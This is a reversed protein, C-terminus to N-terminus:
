VKHCERYKNYFDIRWEDIFSKKNYQDELDSEFFKGKVTYICIYLKKQNDRLFFYLANNLDALNIDHQYELVTLDNIAIKFLGSLWLKLDDGVTYYNGKKEDPLPAEIIYDSFNFAIDTIGLMQNIDSQFNNEHLLTKLNKCWGKHERRLTISRNHEAKAHAQFLTSLVLDYEKQNIFGLIDELTDERYFFVKESSIVKDCLMMIGMDFNAPCTDRNVSLGVIQQSEDNCLLNYFIDTVSQRCFAYPRVIGAEIELIKSISIVVDKLQRGTEDKTSVVSAMFMGDAKLVHYEKLESIPISQIHNEEDLVLLNKRTESYKKIRFVAIDGDVTERYIKYGVMNVLKDSAITKNNEM